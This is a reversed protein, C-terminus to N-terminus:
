IANLVCILLHLCLGDDKFPELLPMQHAHACDRLNRNKESKFPKFVSPINWVEQALYPFSPSTCVLELPSPFIPPINQIRALSFPDRWAVPRPFAACRQKEM